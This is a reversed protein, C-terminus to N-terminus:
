FSRGTRREFDPPQPCETEAGSVDIGTRVVSEEKRSARVVFVVPQKAGENRYGVLQVFRVIVLMKGMSLFNVVFLCLDRKTGRQPRNGNKPAFRAPLIIGRM